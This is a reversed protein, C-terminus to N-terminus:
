RAELRPFCDCSCTRKEVSFTGIFSDAVIQKCARTVRLNVNENVECSSVRSKAPRIIPVKILMSSYVRSRSRSIWFFSGKALSTMKSLM